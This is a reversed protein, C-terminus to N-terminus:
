INNQEESINMNEQFNLVYTINKTKGNFLSQLFLFILGSVPYNRFHHM